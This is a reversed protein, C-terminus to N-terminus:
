QAALSFRRYRKETLVADLPRDWPDHPLQAVRQCEYGIGVLFPKKWHRRRGLYALTADYYGGGMGLRYGADDFGVLPVLLLDLQRARLPRLDQPEHIGYRNALMIHRDHVLGFRMPQAQRQPIVPLYCGRNMWLAQNLLPTVDFEANHPLYFGIRRARLLLGVRLALRTANRGAIRRQDPRIASRAARLQRRLTSKNM